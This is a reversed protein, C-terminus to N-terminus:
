KQRKKARLSPTVPAAPRKKAFASTRSDEEDDDNDYDRAALASEEAVKAANRRAADLKYHLKRELPDNSPVFKSPRPVVAGLGLRCFGIVLEGLYIFSDVQRAPRAHIEFPEDEAPESMTNLWKKALDLARDLKVIGPRKKKQPTKDISMAVGQVAYWNGSFGLYQSPKFQTRLLLSSKLTRKHCHRAFPWSKPLFFPKRKNPKLRVIPRVYFSHFRSISDFWSLYVM